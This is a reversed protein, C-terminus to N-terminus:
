GFRMLVVLTLLASTFFVSSHCFFGSTDQSVNLIGELIHGKWDTNQQFFFLNRLKELLIDSVDSFQQKPFQKRVPVPNTVLCINRRFHKRVESSARGQKQAASVNVAWLLWSFCCLVTLFFLRSGFAVEYVALLLQNAIVSAIFIILCYCCM